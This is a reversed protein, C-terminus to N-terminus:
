RKVARPPLNRDPSEEWVPEGVPRLPPETEIKAMERCSRCQHHVSTVVGCACLTYRPTM